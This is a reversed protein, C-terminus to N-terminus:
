ILREWVVNLAPVGRRAVPLTPPAGAFALGRFRRLMTEIFMEAELKAFYAGLCFHAGVSFPIARPDCRAADFADAEPFVTDDRNAAALTLVVVADRPVPCGAIDVDELAVRKVGQSPSDWRLMEDVFGSLRVPDDRIADREAASAVSFLHIVCAGLHRVMVHQGAVLLIMLTSVLEDDSLGGARGQRVLTSFLGLDDPSSIKDALYASFEEVAANMERVEEAERRRAFNRNVWRVWTLLQHWEEPPFGLTSALAMTPLPEIVSALLDAEKVGELSGLVHDLAAQIAPRYAATARPTFAPALPARLRRHDAGDRYLFWERRVRAAPSDSGGLFQETFPANQQWAEDNSTLRDDRLAAVVDEYRTVRYLGDADLHLPEDRRLRALFAYPDATVDGDDAPRGNGGTM